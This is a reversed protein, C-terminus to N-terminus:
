SAKKLYKDTHQTKEFVLRGNKERRILLVMPSPTDNLLGDSTNSPACYYLVVTNSNWAQSLEKAAEFDYGNDDCFQKIETNWDDFLKCM